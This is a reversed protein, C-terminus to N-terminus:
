ECIPSPLRRHVPKKHFRLSRVSTILNSNWFLPVMWTWPVWVDQCYARRDLRPAAHWSPLLVHRALCRVYSRVLEPNIVDKLELEEIWEWAERDSYAEDNRPKKSPLASSQQWCRKGGGPTIILDTNGQAYKGGAEQRCSLQPM